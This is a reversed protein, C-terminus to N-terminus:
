IQMITDIGTDMVICARIWSNMYLEGPLVILLPLIQGWDEFLVISLYM